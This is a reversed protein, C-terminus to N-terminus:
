KVGPVGSFHTLQHLRFSPTGPAEVVFSMEEFLPSVVSVMRVGSFHTVVSGFPRHEQHRSLLLCKRMLHLFSEAFGENTHKPHARGVLRHPRAAHEDKALAASSVQAAHRPKTNSQFLTTAFLSDARFVPHHEHHPSRHPWKTRRSFLAAWLSVHSHETHPPPVAWHAVHGPTIRATDKWLLVHTRQSTTETIGVASSASAVQSANTVRREAASTADNCGSMVSARSELNLCAACSRPKHRGKANRVVRGGRSRTVTPARSPMLKARCSPYRSGYASAHCIRVVGLTPIHARATQLTLFLSARFSVKSFTISQPTPITSRKAFAVNAGSVRRSKEVLGTDAFQNSIKSAVSVEPIECPAHGASSGFSAVASGLSAVRLCPKSFQLVGILVNTTVNSSCVNACTVAHRLAPNLTACWNKNVLKATMFFRFLKQFSETADDRVRFM